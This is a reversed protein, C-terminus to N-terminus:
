IDHKQNKHYVQMSKVLGGDWYVQLSDKCVPSIAYNVTSVSARM